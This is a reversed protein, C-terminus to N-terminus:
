EIVRTHLLKGAANMYSLTMARSKANYRLMGFNESDGYVFHLGRSNRERAANNRSFTLFTGIPGATFEYIASRENKPWERAFHYDASLIIMRADHKRQADRFLALMEDRESSYNGWADQSSGHMPVSTAILRFRARSKEFADVFWRKQTAGLMTKNADDADSQRSRFARTDLMFLDVDRGLSIQRYLGRSAVARCPWYERFAQEAQPQAPHDGNADNEIEHDDWTAYIVTRAAFAQLPSDSRSAFHKRRYHKLTPSFDRKPIDAYITDGLHVFYDPAEKAMVDFLRYPRYREEMDGSFALAFDPSAATAIPATKFQQVSSVREDKAFVAYSVLTASPLGTMEIVGVWDTDASFKKSETRQDLTTRPAQSASWRVHLESATNACLSVLARGHHADFVAPLLALTASSAASAVQGAGIHTGAVVGAALLARRRQPQAPYGDDHTGCALDPLLSRLLSRKM